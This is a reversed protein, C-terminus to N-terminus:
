PLPYLRKETAGLPDGRDDEVCARFFTFMMLGGVVVAGGLYVYWPLPTARGVTAGLLAMTGLACLRTWLLGDKM